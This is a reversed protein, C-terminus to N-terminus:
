VHGELHTIDNSRVEIKSGGISTGVRGWSRFLHCMDHRVGKDPELVQLKYYSNNGRVIDVMGLVVSYLMKEHQYM